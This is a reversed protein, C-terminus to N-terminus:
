LEQEHDEELEEEQEQDKEQEPASLEVTKSREQEVAKTAEAFERKLEPNQDINSVKVGQRAFEKLVAARKEPDETFVAVRDGFRERALRVADRVSERDDAVVHIRNGTDRIAEKGDRVYSISKDGNPVVEYKKAWDERSPKAESRDDRVNAIETRETRRTPEARAEVTGRQEPVITKRESTAERSEALRDRYSQERAADHLEFKDITRGDRLQISDVGRRELTDLFKNGERDIQATASDPNQFYERAETTSITAM